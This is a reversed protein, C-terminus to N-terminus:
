YATFSIFTISPNIADVTAINGVTGEATGITMPITM